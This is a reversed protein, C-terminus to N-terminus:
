QSISAACHKGPQRSLASQWAVQGLLAAAIHLAFPQVV